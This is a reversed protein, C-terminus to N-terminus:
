KNKLETIKQRVVPKDAEGSAVKKDLGELAKELWFNENGTGAEKREIEKLERSKKILISPDNIEDIEKSLREVTKKKILFDPMVLTNWDKDVKLNEKKCDGKFYIQEHYQESDSDSAPVENEDVDIFPLSKFEDPFNGHNITMRNMFELDTEDEKKLDWYFSSYITRGDNKKFIRIKM